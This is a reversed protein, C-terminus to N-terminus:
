GRATDDHCIARHWAAGASDADTDASYRLWFCQFDMEKKQLKCVQHFQQLTRQVAEDRGLAASPVLILM